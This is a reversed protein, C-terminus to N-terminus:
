PAAKALVELRKAALDRRADRRSALAVFQTYAERAGAADGTGELAVGLAYQPAAYFPEIEIAKRLPAVADAHQGADVLTSGQLYHVFPEDTALEAALGLAGLAAATDKQALAIRALEVHAAFYSLDETIARGLAANASDVMGLRAFVVGVSHEVNAKSLYFVVSEDKKGEEKRLDEIGLKFEEIAPRWAAQLAYIRGREVRISGPNKSRKAALEYQELATPMNGRSYAFWGKTYPSSREMYDVIAIEIEHDGATPYSRRLLTRYYVMLMTGDNKRYYLPDLRSARLQLSDIAKFEKSERAKRGGEMYSKLTLPKRMLLAARRGDLAEPSSPDLRAAWYFAAAAEDPKTELLRIGQGLYTSADNTDAGAALKPRKELQGLRQAGIPTAALLATVALLLARM